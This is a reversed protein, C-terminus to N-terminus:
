KCLKHGICANAVTHDVNWTIKNNTSDFTPVLKYVADSVDSTGIATITGNEVSLSQVKGVATLAPGIDGYNNDCPDLINEDQICLGIALKYPVTRAIVDVFKVRKTYQGYQPVAVAALIGIIAIVIMLEILTFGKQTNRQMM